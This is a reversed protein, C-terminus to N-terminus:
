NVEKVTVEINRTSYDEDNQNADVPEVIQLAIIDMLQNLQEPTLERDTTFSITGEYDYVECVCDRLPQFCDECKNLEWERKAKDTQSNTWTTKEGNNNTYKIVTM